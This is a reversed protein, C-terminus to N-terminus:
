EPLIGNLRNNVETAAETARKQIQPDQASSAILNLTDLSQATPFRRLTGITNAVEPDKPDAQIRDRILLVASAGGGQRVYDRAHRYFRRSDPIKKLFDTATAHAEETGIRGLAGIERSFDGDTPNLRDKIMPLAGPDGLYALAGVIDGQLDKDKTTRYENQLSPIMEKNGSMAVAFVQMKKGFNGPIMGPMAMGGQGANQLFLSMMTQALEESGEASSGVYFAGGMLAGQKLWPHTDKELLLYNLFGIVHKERNAFIRGLKYLQGVRFDSERPLFKAGFPPMTEMIIRRLIPWGREGMLLLRDIVDLFLDINTEGYAEELLKELLEPTDDAYPNTEVPMTALQRELEAIRDRLKAIMEDDQVQRERLEILELPEAPAQRRGPLADSSGLFYGAGIGLVFVVAAILIPKL